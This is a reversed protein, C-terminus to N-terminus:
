KVRYEEILADEVVDQFHLLSLEMDNCLRALREAAERRGFLDAISVTAAIGYRTHPIGCEDTVTTEVVRYLYRTM